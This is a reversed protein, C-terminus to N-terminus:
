SGDEVDFPAKLDSNPELIMRSRSYDVIVTFRRLVEGGVVGDVNKEVGDRDFSLFVPASAFQFRGLRASSFNVLVRHQEGGAGHGTSEAGHKFYRLLQRREVFPRNLLFATDFGTDLEIDAAFAPKGALAFLTRLLPTKRGALDLPVVAGNGSYKFTAPDYLTMEKKRYDVRVVFAKIFDYGIVGDFEFGPPANIPSVVISQGPVRAGEVGISVGNVMYGKFYGGTGSGAVARGTKLGLEKVFREDLLTAGAGTDFIFRLPRSGNARAKMLIINNDIDVSFTASSGSAFVAKAGGATRQAFVSAPVAAAAIILGVCRIYNM